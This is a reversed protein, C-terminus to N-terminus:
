SRESIREPASDLYRSRSNSLRRIGEQGFVDEEEVNGLVGATPEPCAESGSFFFCHFHEGYSHSYINNWHFLLLRAFLRASNVGIRVVAASLLVLIKIVSSVLRLALTRYFGFMDSQKKFL